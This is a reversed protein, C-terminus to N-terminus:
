RITVWPNGVNSSKEYIWDCWFEFLVLGGRGGTNPVFWQLNLVESVTAIAWGAQVTHHCVQTWLLPSCIPMACLEAVCSPKPFCLLDSTTHEDVM